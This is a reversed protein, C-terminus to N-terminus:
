TQKASYYEDLIGELVRYSVIDNMVLFKIIFALGPIDIVVSDKTSIFFHKGVQKIVITNLHPIRTVTLKSYAENDNDM